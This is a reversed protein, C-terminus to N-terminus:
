QGGANNPNLSTGTANALAARLDNLAKGTIVIEVLEDDQLPSSGDGPQCPAVSDIYLASKLMDPAAAILRANAKANRQGKFQVISETTDATPQDTVIEIETFVDFIRWPGPTHATTM